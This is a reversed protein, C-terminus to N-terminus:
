AMLGIAPLISHWQSGLWAVAATVHPKVADLVKVFGEAKKAYDLARDLAKGIEAKDPAPKAAEEEAEGLANDIKRRDPTELGALATRLAALVARIDVAEPPPLEARQYHLSATGHDGTQIINGQADRGIFVSRGASPRDAGNM